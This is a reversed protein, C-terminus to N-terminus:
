AQLLKAKAADYEEVTIAGDRQLASLRALQNALDGNVSADASPNQSRGRMARWRLKIATTADGPRADPFEVATQRRLVETGLMALAFFVVIGVATGTAPIPDWIFVLLMAAGVIAFTAQPRERLFPAIARRSTTAIRAPGAFWASVVVLSGVLIFAGAETALLSTMIGVAASVAPRVSADQVISDTVQSQLLKRAAIGVVGALVIAFGVSMLTRRRHDRALLIATAYLLPVIITLWLALHRILNGVNQVLKLQDSKLVTLHAISPPLKDAVSAPLGLQVAIQQVISALDLSVVGQNVRVHRTGGNVLAIFALDAARNAKGWLTQIRPRSLALEVGQVAVNQLAGAAPGALPQLVRPLGSKLVGAVNVNAYLQGVLYNSTAGRIESNQLLQTSQNEWNDPDFLLRNAFVSLMGIIALVTTVVIIADVAILRGRTIKRTSTTPAPGTELTADGDNVPASPNQTGGEVTPQEVDESM